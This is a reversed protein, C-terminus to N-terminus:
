NLTKHLKVLSKVSKSWSFLFVFDESRGKNSKHSQQITSSNFNGVYKLFLSVDLISTYKLM